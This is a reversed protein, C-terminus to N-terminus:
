SYIDVVFLQQAVVALSYIDSKMDYKGGSIVEPATYKPTGSDTTHTQSEFKHIVALGFDAVKVFRGNIGDTILINEPKLDRHIILPRQKHLFNVSEVIEKFLESSIYYEIPTMIESEKRKFENQKQDMIGRLTNLCLEMQIFLTQNEIWSSKYQVIHDSQLKAM